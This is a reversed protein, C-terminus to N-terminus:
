GNFLAYAIAIFLIAMLALACAKLRIKEAVPVQIGARGTIVKPNKDPDKDGSLVGLAALIRARVPV